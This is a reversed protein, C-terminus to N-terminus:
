LQVSFGYVQRKLYGVAHDDVSHTDTNSVTELLVRNGNQDESYIKVQHKHDVATLDLLAASAVYLLDGKKFSKTSIIKKGQFVENDVIAFGHPITTHLIAHGDTMQVELKSYSLSQM